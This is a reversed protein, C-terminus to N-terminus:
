QPSQVLPYGKQEWAIMGGDVDQINTYGLRTLTKAAIGSMSGSRCYVVIKAVKDSPLKSLNQEIENYPVFLDTGKIEGEYPIHVNVLLFDKSELLTKLQAVTIIKYTQGDVSVERESTVRASPACASIMVALLALLAGTIMRSKFKM